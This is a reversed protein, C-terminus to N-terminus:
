LKTDIKQFIPPSFLQNNKELLHYKAQVLTGFPKQILEDSDVAGRHCCPIKV